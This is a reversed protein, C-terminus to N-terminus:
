VGALAPVAGNEWIGLVSKGVRYALVRDLLRSIPVMLRDWVRIQKPTPMASHLLLRNGLSAFLGASDLYRLSVCRLASGVASQLTGRTYRRFHGIHADFPTYLWNHAPALVILFGGPALHPIVREVEERDHEIHELVDMYLISDFEEAPDLDATTGVVTRCCAPLQGAAHLAEIQEALRRDPELCTWTEHTPRCLLRTTGGIGAGVELVRSGLYPQLLERYYSKWNHAQSFLELETGVYSFDDM